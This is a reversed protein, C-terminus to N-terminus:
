QRAVQKAYWDEYVRAVLAFKDEKKQVVDNFKMAGVKFETASENVIFQLVAHGSEGSHTIEGSLEVVHEGTKAEYYRWYPESFYYNFATSVTVDSFETVYGEKVADIYVGDTVDRKATYVYGVLVGMFVVCIFVRIHNGLSM